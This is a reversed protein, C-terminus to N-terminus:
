QLTDASAHNVSVGQVEQMVDTFVQAFQELLCDLAVYEASWKGILQSASESPFSNGDKQM